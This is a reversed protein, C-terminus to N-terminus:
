RSSSPTRPARCPFATVSSTTRPPSITPRRTRASPPSRTIRSDRLQTYSMSPRAAGLATSVPRYGIRSSLRALAAQFDSAGQISQMLTALSETSRPMTGDNYLPGFRGLMDAFAAGLSIRDTGSPAGCSQTKDPNQTDKIPVLVDPFTADIAAILDPRRRVMAGVRALAYNRAAQQAAASVPNGNSDVAGDTILPLLNTLVNDAFQGNVKHCVQRYSDGQLDEPFVLSAVRDCFAGYVEEGITGLAPANRTTDIDTCAFALTIGASGM